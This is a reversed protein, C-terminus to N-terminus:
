NKPSAGPTARQRDRRGRRPDCGAPRPAHRKGGRRLPEARWAQGHRQQHPRLGDERQHVAGRRDRSQHAGGRGPLSGGVGAHHARRRHGGPDDRTPDRRETPATALRIRGRRALREIQDVLAKRRAAHRDSPCRAAAAHVRAQPRPQRPDSRGPPFPRLRDGLAARAVRISSAVDGWMQADSKGELRSGEAGRGHGARGRHAPGCRGTRHGTARKAAAPLTPWASGGPRKRRPRRGGVARSSLEIPRSAGCLARPHLHRQCRPGSGRVGLDAEDAAARADDLRGEGHAVIIRTQLTWSGGHPTAYGFDTARM